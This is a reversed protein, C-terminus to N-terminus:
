RAYKVIVAVLAVQLAALMWFLIRFSGKITKHRFWHMGVYAGPTGGACALGHLVLEPVRGGGSRARSKDYGYYLFATLNIAVLWAVLWPVWGWTRSLLLWGGVALALAVGFAIAFHRTVARRRREGAGM